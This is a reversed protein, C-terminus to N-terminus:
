DPSRRDTDTALNYALTMAIATIAGAVGLAPRIYEPSALAFRLMIAAFAFGFNRFVIAPTTTFALSVFALLVDVFVLVTFFSDLIPVVPALGAVAFVRLACLGLLTALLLLVVGRKIAKFREGSAPDQTLPRHRQLRAFIAAGVFLLVGGAADAAMVAVTPLQEFGVKIPESFADLKLFADRLLVLAYLQLHRAVSTAVSEAIAFAMEFLEYLLLLSIAWVIAALHVSPLWDPRDGPDLWRGVEIIAIGGLLVAVLSGSRAYRFVKGDWAHEFRQVATSVPNPM